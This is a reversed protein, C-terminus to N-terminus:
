CTTAAAISKCGSLTSAKKLSEPIEVTFQDRVPYAAPWMSSPYLDGGLPHNWAALPVGDEKSLTINAYYADRYENPAPRWVLDFHLDAGASATAPVIEAHLLDIYDFRALRDNVIPVSQPLVVEVTALNLADVQGDDTVASLPHWIKWLM